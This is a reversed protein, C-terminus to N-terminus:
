SLWNWHSIIVGPCVAVTFPEVRWRMRNNFYFGGSCCCGERVFCTDYL